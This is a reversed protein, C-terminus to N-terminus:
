TCEKVCGPYLYMGTELTGVEQSNECCRREGLRGEGIYVTSFHYGPRRVGRLSKVTLILMGTSVVM